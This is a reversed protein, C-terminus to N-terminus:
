GFFGQDRLALEGVGQIQIVGIKLAVGHVGGHEAQQWHLPHQAIAAQRETELTVLEFEGEGVPFEQIVDFLQFQERALANVEDYCGLGADFGNKM